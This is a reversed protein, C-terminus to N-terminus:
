PYLRDADPLQKTCAAAGDSLIDESLRWSDGFFATSADADVIITGLEDSSDEQPRLSEAYIVRMSEGPYCWSPSDGGLLWHFYQTAANRYRAQHGGRNVVVLREWEDATMTKKWKMMQSHTKQIQAYGADWANLLMLPGMNRAFSSLSARDVRRDRLTALVIADSSDLIQKQRSLQTPDFDGTSLASRAAEIRTRFLTMENLQEETLDSEVGAVSSLQLYIAFPVHAVDKLADYVNPNVRAKEIGGKRHLILDSGSVVVFPSALGIVSSRRSLYSDLFLQDVDGLPGSPIAEPGHPQSATSKASAVPLSSGAPTASPAQASALSGFETCLWVLGVLTQLNVRLIGKEIFTRL